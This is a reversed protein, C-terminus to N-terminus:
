LLPLLLFWWSLMLSTGYGSPGAPAAGGYGAYGGPGAGMGGGGGGGGGGGYYGMGGPGQQGMGQNVNPYGYPHQGPPGGAGNPVGGYPAQQQQQAGDRNNYGGVAGGYGGNVFRGGAGGYGANGGRNTRDSVFFGISCRFQIVPVHLV